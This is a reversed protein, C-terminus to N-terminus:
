RAGRITTERTGSGRVGGQLIGPGVIYACHRDRQFSGGYAGLYGVLRSEDGCRLDDSPGEFSCKPDAPTPGRRDDDARPNWSMFRTEQDLSKGLLSHESDNETIPRISLAFLFRYLAKDPRKELSSDLNM